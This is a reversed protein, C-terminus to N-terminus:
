SYKVCAPKGQYIRCTFGPLCVRSKCTSGKVVECRPRPPGAVCRQGHPCVVHDCTSSCAAIPPCPARKCVVKKLVCVANNPCGPTCAPVCARGCARACCRQGDGCAGDSTCKDQRRLCKGFFNSRPCAGPSPKRQCVPKGDRVVCRGPCRILACPNDTQRRQCSSIACNPLPCPVDPPLICQYGSRCSYKCPPVCTRQCGYRCCKQNGPCLGDGSCRDTHSTPCPGLDDLPCQGPKRQAEAGTGVKVCRAPGLPCSPLMCRTGGRVCKQGAGCAPNCVPNCRRSCGTQCCREHKPCEADSTCSDVTGGPKCRIFAAPFDPCQGPTTQPCPPCHSPCPLQVSECCRKCIDRNSTGGADEQAQASNLLFLLLAAARTARAM